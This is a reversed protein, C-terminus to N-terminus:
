KPLRFYLSACVKVGRRLGLLVVEVSSPVLLTIDEFDVAPRKQSPDILPSLRSLWGGARRMSKNPSM